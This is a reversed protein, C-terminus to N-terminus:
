IYISMRGLCECVRFLCATRGHGDFNVLGLNFVDDTLAEGCTRELIDLVNQDVRKAAGRLAWLM